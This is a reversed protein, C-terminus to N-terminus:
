GGAPIHSGVFPNTDPFWPFGGYNSENHFTNTCTSFARDCGPFLDISSLQTNAPLPRLLTLKGTEHRMILHYSGDGLRVMGGTFYGTGTTGKDLSDVGQFILGNSNRVDTKKALFASDTINLITRSEGFSVNHVTLKYQEREVGCAISYLNHPCSPEYKRRLGQRKVSSYIPDCTIRSELGGFACTSVRGQFMVRYDLVGNDSGYAVFVKLFIPFAPTGPVFLKAVENNKPVTLTLTAKNIDTTNQIEDRRIPEPIFLDDGRYTLENGSTFRYVIEESPTAGFSKLTSDVIDKDYAGLRFEYLEIPELQKRQEITQVLQQAAAPNSYVYTVPQFLNDPKMDSQFIDTPFDFTFTRNSNFPSSPSLILVGESRNKKSVSFSYPIGEVQSDTDALFFDDYLYVISLYHIKGSSDKNEILESFEISAM